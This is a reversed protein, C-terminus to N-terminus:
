GAVM